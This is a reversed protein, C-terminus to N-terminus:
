DPATTEALDSLGWPNDAFHCRDCPAELVTNHSTFAFREFNGDASAPSFTTWFGTDEDLGVEMGSADHCAVCSVTQHDADHGPIPTAPEVLAPHCGDAACSTTTAHAEHCGTCEYGTHAGGLQVDGHEPLEVPAHCKLCLESPSAVAAYEGLPAIELWAIEPQINDKKDVPHCVNCPIHVWESEPILPPPDELEFKCAFCSEPLDDMSPMWNIPAHCRACTNNQGDADLVFANAHPSAQWAAEIAAPDPATEEPPSTPAAPDGPSSVAPEDPLDVPTEGPSTGPFLAEPESTVAAQQTPPTAGGSQCASLAFIGLLVLSWLILHYPLTYKKIM